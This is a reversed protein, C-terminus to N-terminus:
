LTSLFISSSILISDILIFCGLSLRNIFTLPVYGKAGPLEFRKVRRYKENWEPFPNVPCMMCDRNIVLMCECVFVIVTSNQGETISICIEPQVFFDFLRGGFHFRGAVSIMKKVCYLLAILRHLHLKFNLLCAQLRDPKYRCDNLM